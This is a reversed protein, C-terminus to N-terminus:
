IHQEVWLQWNPIPRHAKSLRSQRMIEDCHYTWQYLKPASEQQANFIHTKYSHCGDIVIKNGIRMILLLLLSLVLPLVIPPSFPYHFPPLFAFLVLSLFLPLLL